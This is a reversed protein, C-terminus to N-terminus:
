PSNRLCMIIAMIKVAPGLKINLLSVLDNQTMMLLAEGDIQQETFVAAVADCGQIRGVLDAVQEPSWAEVESRRADGLPATLHRHREWSHPPPPVPHPTYGPNFVSQHVMMDVGPDAQPPPPLPQPLPGMSSQQTSSTSPSPATPAMSAQPQGSTLPPMPGTPGMIRPEEPALKPVKQPRNPEPPSLEDFFKRRKRIRKKQGDSEETDNTSDRAAGVPRLDLQVKPVASKCKKREPPPQLRDAIFSEPDKTLNQLSYPCGYATHHTTYVPGKIHGVGKCGPTGCGTGSDVDEAQQEPTLPPQLPHSTKACWSPPHLDPSDDDMWLDYEDGWGDFHIKVQYDQLEVVTAVRILAPNRRDAAEVKMGKRFERPPRTKFARAPVAMSNTEQLYEHWNFSEPNPYNNPPHLVVGNEACWGVPHIYPSSVENWVDYAKEWGDFHILVRNDLVDAVTAVCVWMNKRDEAELKMGVRFNNPTVVSPVAKGAFAQRPAAQAKCHELYAKWSFGIVGFPPELQRGNKECWGAPFINPSDANVWFDHQESYGDFHLRLRHGIVEAVTMVCFLSQHCPDIAELKM